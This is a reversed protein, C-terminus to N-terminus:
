NMKWSNENLKKDYKKKLRSGAYIKINKKPTPLTSIFYTFVLPKGTVVGLLYIFPSPCCVLSKGTVYNHEVVVAFLSIHIAEAQVQVTHEEQYGDVIESIGDKPLDAVERGGREWGQWEEAVEVEEFFGEVSGQGGDGGAVAGDDEESQSGAGDEDDGRRGGGLFAECLLVVDDEGVTGAEQGAFVQAVVVGGEDPGGVAVVPAVKAPDGGELDEGGVAELGEGLDAGLLDPGHEASEM